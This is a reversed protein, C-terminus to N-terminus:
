GLRMVDSTADIIKQLNSLVGNGFKRVDIEQHNRIIDLFYAQKAENSYDTGEIETTLKMEIGKRGSTYYTGTVLTGTAGTHTEIPQRAILQFLKKGNYRKKRIRNGDKVDRLEFSEGINMQIDGHEPSTFLEFHARRDVNRSIHLDELAEISQQIPVASDSASYGITTHAQIDQLIEQSSHESIKVPDVGPYHDGAKTSMISYEDGNKIFRAAGFGGIRGLDLQAKILHHDAHYVDHLTAVRLSDFPLANFEKRYIPSPEVFTGDLFIRGNPTHEELYGRSTLARDILPDIKRRFENRTTDDILLERENIPRVESM